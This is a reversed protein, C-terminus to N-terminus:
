NTSGEHARTPPGNLDLLNLARRYMAIAGKRGELDNCKPASVFGREAAAEFLLDSARDADDGSAFRDQGAAKLLLGYACWCVAYPSTPKVPEGAIDRALAGKAHTGPKDLMDVGHHLLSRVSV